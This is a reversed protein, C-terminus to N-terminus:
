PVGQESRRPAPLELETPAGAVIRIEIMRAPDTVWRGRSAEGAAQTVIRYRGPRLATFAFKGGADPFAVQVPQASTEADAAVLAVAVEQARVAGTLKGRIAGAAAVLVPVPAEPGGASLDLVTDSALYCSEGLRNAGIRYRAPALDAIAQEKGVFAMDLRAAHQRFQM